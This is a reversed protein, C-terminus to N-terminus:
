KEGFNVGLIICGIFKWLEQRRFICVLWKKGGYKDFRSKEVVAEYKKEDVQGLLRAM